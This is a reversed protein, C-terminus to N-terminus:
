IEDERHGVILKRADKWGYARESLKQQGIAVVRQGVLEGGQHEYFPRSPNDALVWVMVSLFGSDALWRAFESLLRKGIGQCHFDPLIYIAYLEGQYDERGDREPGGNAFGIIGHNRSEAVFTAQEPNEIIESWRETRDDESLAKLVEDAVIGRYASRWTEVQVRAIGRGDDATAPRIINM